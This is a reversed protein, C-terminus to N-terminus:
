DGWEEPRYKQLYKILDKTTGNKARELLFAHEEEDALWKEYRQKEEETWFEEDNFDDDM